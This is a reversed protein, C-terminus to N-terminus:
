VEKWSEVKIVPALDLLEFPLNLDVMEPDCTINVGGAFPGQGQGGLGGVVAGGYLAADGHARLTGRALLLADVNKNGLDIDGAKGGSSGLAVLTLLSDETENKRKLDGTIKIDGAAVVTARVEYSGSIEVDGDVFYVGDTDLDAIDLDPQKGHGQGPGPEGIVADGAFFWGAAGRFWEEDLDPFSPVFVGEEFNDVEANGKETIIGGLYATDVSVSGQVRLDSNIVLAGGRVTVNGTLTVEGPEAPLISLGRFLDAPSVVRAYVQLRKRAERYRGDARVEVLRGLGTQPTADEVVVGAIEGEAGEDPYPGALTTGRADRWEPDSRLKALAREVGAEATYLAQTRFEQFLTMRKAGAALTLTAGGLLLSVALILVVALLAQGYQNRVRGCM